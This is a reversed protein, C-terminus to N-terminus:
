SGSNSEWAWKHLFFLLAAIGGAIILTFISDSM